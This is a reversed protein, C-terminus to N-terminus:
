KSNDSKSNEEKVEESIRSIESALEMLSNYGFKLLMGSYEQVDPSNRKVKETELNYEITSLLKDIFIIQNKESLRDFVEENIVFIVDEGYQAKAEPPNFIVKGCMKSKTVKLKDNAVLSYSLGDLHMQNIREKVLTETQESVQRM